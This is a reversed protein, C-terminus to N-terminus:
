KHGQLAYIISQYADMMKEKDAFTISTVNIDKYSFELRNEQKTVKSLLNYSRVFWRYSLTSIKNPLFYINQDTIVMVGEQNERYTQPFATNLRDGLWLNIPMNKIIRQTQVSFKDFGNFLEEVSPKDNFDGAILSISAQEDNFIKKLNSIDQSKAKYIIINPINDVALRIAFSGRLLEKELKHVLDQKNLADKLIISYYKSEFPKGMNIKNYYDINIEMHDNNSSVMRGQSLQDHVMLQEDCKPEETKSDGLWFKGGCFPCYKVMTNQLIQEGCFPCYKFNSNPM